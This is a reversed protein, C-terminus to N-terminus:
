CIKLKKYFFVRLKQKRLYKQLNKYYIPKNFRKKRDREITLELRKKNVKVSYDLFFKGNKRYKHGLNVWNKRPPMISYIQEDNINRKRKSLYSQSILLDHNGKAKKARYSILQSILKENTFFDEKDKM